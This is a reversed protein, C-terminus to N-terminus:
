RTWAFAPDTVCTEKWVGNMCTVDNSELFVICSDTRRDTLWFSGVFVMMTLM